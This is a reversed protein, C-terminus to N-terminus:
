EDAYSQAAAGSLGLQRAAWLGLLRRRRARVKFALEQDREFKREFAKERDDFSMPDGIPAARRGAASLPHAIIRAKVRERSADKHVNASSRRGPDSQGTM